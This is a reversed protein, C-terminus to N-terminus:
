SFNHRCCRRCRMRPNCTSSSHSHTVIEIAKEQALRKWNVGGDERRHHAPASEEAAYTRYSEVWPSAPAAKATVNDGSSMPQRMTAGATKPREMAEEKEPSPEPSVSRHDARLKAHRPAPHDASRPVLTFKRVKNLEGRSTRLHADTSLPPM